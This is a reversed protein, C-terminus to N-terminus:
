ALTWARKAELNDADAHFAGRLLPDAIRAAMFDIMTRAAAWDDRAGQADGSAFRARARSLVLRLACSRFGTDEAEGLAQDARALVDEWRQLRVLARLAVDTALLCRRKLGASRDRAACEDACFLADELDGRALAAEACPLASPPSGAEDGRTKVWGALTEGDRGRRAAITALLDIMWQQMWVRSLRGADNFVAKAAAEARDHAHIAGLWTAVGLERMCCGFPHEDGAVELQFSSWAEDYRGMDTLALGRISAYQVRLSGLQAALAVGEDCTAVCQAFEARRYHHWMMWFLHEKLRVPDRRAHLRRRLEVAEAHSEGASLVKLRMSVAEIRLDEDGLGEALSCAEEVNARAQARYDHWYDTFWVTPLLARCMARRDGAARALTYAELYSDRTREAYGTEDLSRIYLGRSRMLLLEIERARDGAASARALLPEIDALADRGRFLDLRLQARAQLVADQDHGVAMDQVASNLAAIADDVRGLGRLARARLLALPGARDRSAPLTRARDLSRLAEEFALADIARSVARELWRLTRESPAAAGAQYLHHAIESAMRAPDAGHLTEFADAVRLHLRQRRAASVLSLLTQRVQEHVFTYRADRDSTVEEILTAAAAEELKDLLADEDGGQLAVLLDFSFTKGIVAAATLLRRCGEGVRELRQGVLLGISRPVETEAVQVDTRWHGHADFLKGAEVLHRFLEEVFYANGDTEFYVLSLVEAPPPSGARALLVAAVENESLRRLVIEDTVRLRLLLPLALAFPRGPKLDTDRYTGVVLVSISALRQALHQLLALTPEDVWHLDEFVLFLPTQRAAREIFEVVGHLLHRREQEPPLTVPEPIDSYRVRLEPMLKAIEPANEGLSRRMVDASVQRAAEQLQEIIPLYPPAGQLEVCSGSLVRMGVRLADATIEAVLRSKGVGAEGAILILGGEGGRAREVAQVLRAREKTRGVFPTRQSGALVGSDDTQSWPLEWLRWPADIGKLAFEGRDLLEGRATGLVGHVTDSVFIGGPPTVSEIRKSIILTEGHLGGDETLVEGTHLGIRLQVELDARARNRYAITRQIERACAVAHRASQFAVMLGDGTDKILVGRHRDVHGQALTALEREVATAAADGLRQNLLTSGVLDTSLVTVTGEPLATEVTTPTM